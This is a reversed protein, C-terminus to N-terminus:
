GGFIELAVDYESPKIYTDKPEFSRSLSLDENLDELSIKGRRYAELRLLLYTGFGLRRNIKKWELDNLKKGLPISNLLNQFFYFVQDITLLEQVNAGVSWLRTNIERRVGEIGSNLKNLSLHLVQLQQKDNLKKFYKELTRFQTRFKENSYIKEILMQMFKEWESDRKKKTVVLETLFNLFLDQEKYPLNMIQDISRVTVGAPTHKVVNEGSVIPRVLRMTERYLESSFDNLIAQASAYEKDQISDRM